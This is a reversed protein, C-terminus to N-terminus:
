GCLVVLNSQNDIRLKVMKQFCDTSETPFYTYINQLIRLM